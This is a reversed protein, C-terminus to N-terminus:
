FLLLIYFISYVKTDTFLRQKIQNNYSFVNVYFYFIVLINERMIYKLSFYTAKCLKLFVTESDFLFM